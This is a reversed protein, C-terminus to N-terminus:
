ETKDLQIKMAPWVATGCVHEEAVGTTAHLSVAVSQILRHNIHKSLSIRLCAASTISMVNTCRSVVLIPSM